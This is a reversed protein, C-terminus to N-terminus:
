GTAQERDLMFSNMGESKLTGKGPAHRKSPKDGTNIRGKGQSATTNGYDNDVNELFGEISAYKQAFAYLRQPTAGQTHWAAHWGENEKMYDFFPKNVLDDYDPNEKKFELEANIFNSRTNEEIAIERVKSDDLVASPAANSDGILDAIGAMIKKMCAAPDELYTDEDPALEMFLDRREQLSRQAEQEAQAEKWTRFEELQENAAKLQEAQDHFGQETDKFRKRWDVDEDEDEDQEPTAPAQASKTPVEEDMEPPDFMGDTTITQSAEEEPVEVEEETEEETAM